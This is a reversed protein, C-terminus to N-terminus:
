LQSLVIFHYKLQISKFHFTFTRSISHDKLGLDITSSKTIADVLLGMSLPLFKWKASTHTTAACNRSANRTISSKTTTTPTTQKDAAPHGHHKSRSFFTHYKQQITRCGRKKLTRYSARASQWTHRAPTACKSSGSKTKWLGCSGRQRLYCTSTSISTM